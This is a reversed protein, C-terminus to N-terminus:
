NKFKIKEGCRRLSRLPLAAFGRAETGRHNQRGATGNNIM